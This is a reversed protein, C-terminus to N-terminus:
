LDGGRGVFLLAWGTLESWFCQKPRKSRCLGPCRLSPCADYFWVTDTSHKGLSEFTTKQHLINYDKLRFQAMVLSSSCQLRQTCPDHRCLGPKLAPCTKAFTRLYQLVRHSFVQTHMCLLRIRVGRGQGWVQTFCHGLTM